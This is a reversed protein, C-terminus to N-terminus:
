RAVEDGLARAGHQRDVEVALRGVHVRDIGEGGAVAERHELIGRLGVPRCPAAAAGPGEPRGRCEAEIRALVESGQAISPGYAGRVFRDGGLGTGEAVDPLRSLALVLERAPVLPEVAELRREESRLKGM